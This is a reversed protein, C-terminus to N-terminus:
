RGYFGMAARAFREADIEHSRSWYNGPTGNQLWQRTMGVNTPTTHRFEHIIRQAYCATNPCTNIMGEVSVFVRGTPTPVGSRRAYEVRAAAAEGSGANSSNIRRQVVFKLSGFTAPDYDMPGAFQSEAAYMGSIAGEAGEIANALDTKFSGERGTRSLGTTYSVSDVGDSAGGSAMSSFAYSFAATVAGNAFMPAGSARDYALLRKERVRGSSARRWRRHAQRRGLNKGLRPNQRAAAIV